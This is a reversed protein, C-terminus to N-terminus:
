THGQTRCGSVLISQETGFFNALETTVGQKSLSIVIVFMSLIFPVLAYPLHKFPQVFFDFIYLCLTSIALINLVKRKTGQSKGKLLLAGMVILGAIVLIYAFHWVSFLTIEVEGLQWGFFNRLAETINFNNEFM